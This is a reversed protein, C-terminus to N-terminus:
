FPAPGLFYRQNAVEFRALNLEIRMMKRNGKERYYLASQTFKRRALKSSKMTTELAM